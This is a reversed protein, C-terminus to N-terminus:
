TIIEQHYKWEKPKVSFEWEAQRLAESLSDHYTDTLEKGNDDIYLLYYGPCNELQAIQLEAPKPLEKEGRYHKTKGTVKHKETLRISSILIYDQDSM